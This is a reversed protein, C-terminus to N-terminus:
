KGGMSKMILGVIATLVGGGIGSSAVNGLLGGLDFGGAAAAKEFIGMLGALQGGGVGGIIGAITAIVRSIDVNKLVTKVLNGGGAGGLVQILLPLLQEM